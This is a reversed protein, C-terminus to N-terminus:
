HLHGWGNHDGEPVEHPHLVDDLYLSAGSLYKESLVWLIKYKQFGQAFDLEIFIVGDMMIVKLFRLLISSLRWTHLNRVVM